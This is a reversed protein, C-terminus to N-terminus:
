NFKSTLNVSKLHTEQELGAGLRTILFRHAPLEIPWNSGPPEVLAEVNGVEM